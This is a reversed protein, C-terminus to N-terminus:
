PEIVDREIFQKTDYDHYNVIVKTIIKGDPSTKRYLYGEPCFNFVAEFHNQEEFSGTNDVDFESSELKMHVVANQDIDKNDVIEIQVSPDVSVAIQEFVQLLDDFYRTRIRLQFNFNYPVRNYQSKVSGNESRVHKRTFQTLARNSDKQWSTLEFYMAPLVIPNTKRRDPTENRINRSVYM